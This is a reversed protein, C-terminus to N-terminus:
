PSTSGSALSVPAAHRRHWRKLTLVFRTESADRNYTLRGGHAAAIGSSLSLGLGTGKGIEKTTFFPEMIRPVLEIPVGAGSDIVAIRVEDNAVEAAVRVRRIPRQAVADYANALLNILVQAIQTGRCDVYLDAPIPEIRLDIQHMHFRHACLQVTDNVISLLNEPRLPDEDGQRAFFRLAAIIRGIRDVTGDIEKAASLVARADLRGQASLVGLQQARLRIATLPNNVEHALNASMEGLAAMKAAQISAQRTEALAREARQREAIDLRLARESRANARSMQILAFLVICLALIASFLHYNAASYGAPLRRLHSFVGSKTLIFGAIPLVIGVAVPGLDELDFLAFPAAVLAIFLMDAGCDPGLGIANSLVLANSVVIFALRSATPQGRWNLLALSVFVLVALADLAVMWGPAQARDVPISVIMVLTGFLSAANTIRIRKVLSAPSAPTIGLNLFSAVHSGM